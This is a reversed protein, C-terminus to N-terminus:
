VFIPKSTLYLSSSRSNKLDQLRIVPPLTLDMAQDKKTPNM